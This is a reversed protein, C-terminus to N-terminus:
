YVGEVELGSAMLLNLAFTVLFQEKWIRDKSVNEQNSSVSPIEMPNRRFIRISDNKSAIEIIWVSGDLVDSSRWDNAPLTAPDAIGFYQKLNNRQGNSLKSKAEIYFQGNQLQLENTLIKAHVAVEDALAKPYWNIILPNQFSRLITIRVQDKEGTGNTLNIEQLKALVDENLLEEFKPEESFVSQNLFFLISIVQLIFFNNM